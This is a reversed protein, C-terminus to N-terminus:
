MIINFVTLRMQFDKSCEANQDQIKKKLFSCIKYCDIANQSPRKGCSLTVTRRNQMYCEICTIFNYILQAQVNM